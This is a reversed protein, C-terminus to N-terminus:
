DSNYNSQLVHFYYIYRKRQGSIDSHFVINIRAWRVQESTPVAVNMFMVVISSTGGKLGAPERLSMGDGEFSM